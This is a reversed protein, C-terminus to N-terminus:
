TSCPPGPPGPLMRTSPSGVATRIGPRSATAPAKARASSGAPIRERRAAPTSIPTAFSRARTPRSASRGDPRYRVAGLMGVPADFNTIPSAEGGERPVRWANLQARGAPTPANTLFLLWRDDPSFESPALDAGLRTLRSVEGSDVRIRYLDYRENGDEDKAFVVHEGARDWVLGVKVSRPVEGHSVQRLEGTALSQVYLENRGTRDWYFAVRDGQWSVQPALLTPLSVLAELPLPGRSRAVTAIVSPPASAGPPGHGPGTGSSGGGDSGM